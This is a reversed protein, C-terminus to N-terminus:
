SWIRVVLGAAFLLVSYRFVTSQSWLAIFKQQM